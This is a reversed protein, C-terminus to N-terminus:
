YHHHSCLEQILHVRRVEDCLNKIIEDKNLFCKNEIKRIGNLYKDFILKLEPRVTQLLVSKVIAEKMMKTTKTSDKFAKGYTPQCFFIVNMFLLSNMVNM